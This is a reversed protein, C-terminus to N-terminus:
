GKERFPLHQSPRSEPDLPVQWYGNKLDLTSLYRAGRLKDLTAAIHPLPYADKESVANLKRFDICFRHTGDKKRVVVVPSSWASQSPEIVGEREMKAVEENIVAQMAPNRPRYRQKIPVDIKLRIQHSIRDTPGRVTEFAALEEGLFRRLRRDEDPTRQTIGDSIKGATPNHRLSAAPPPALTIPLQAWLDVGILIPVDLNPMVPFCHQVTRGATTLPLIVTHTILVPTRDALSIQRDGPRRPYGRKEALNAVTTSVFSIKSGSDLLAWLHRGAARM